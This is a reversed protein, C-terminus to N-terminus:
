VTAMAVMDVADLLPERLFVSAWNALSGNALISIWVGPVADTSRPPFPLNKQGTCGTIYIIITYVCDMRQMECIFFAMNQENEV